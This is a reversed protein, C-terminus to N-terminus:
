LPPNQYDVVDGFLYDFAGDFLIVNEVDIDSIYLFDLFRSVLIGAHISDIKQRRARM